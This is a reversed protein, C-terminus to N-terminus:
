SWSGVVMPLSGISLNGQRRPSLTRFWQVMEVNKISSLMAFTSMNTLEKPCLGSPRQHLHPFVVLLFNACLGIANLVANLAAVGALLM